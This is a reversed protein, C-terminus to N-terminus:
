EGGGPEHELREGGLRVRVREGGRVRDVVLNTRLGSEVLGLGLGSVVGLGVGVRRVLNTSLGSEVLSSPVSETNTARRVAMGRLRVRARARVRM